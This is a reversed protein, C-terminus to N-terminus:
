GTLADMEPPAATERPRDIDKSVTELRDLVLFASSALLVIGLMPPLIIEWFDTWVSYWSYGLMMRAWSDGTWGWFGVGCGVAVTILVTFKGVFFSASLISPMMTRVPVTMRGTSRAVCRTRARVRRLIFVQAWALVIIPVTILELNGPSRLHGGFILCFLLVIIPVAMFARSVSTLLFDIFRAATDGTVLITKVAVAGILSSVAIALIANMLVISVDNRASNLWESFTTQLDLEQDRFPQYDTDTALLPSLLALLALAALVIAAALGIRSAVLGRLLGGILDKLSVDRHAAAPPASSIQTGSDRSVWDRLFEAVPRRRLIFTVASACSMLVLTLICTTYFVTMLLPLDSSWISEFAMWGLGGYDFTIDVLLVCAMTWAIHYRSYPSIISLYELMRRGSKWAGKRPNGWAADHAAEMRGARQILVIFGASALVGVLVPLVLHLLVERLVSISLEEGFPVSGHVPLDLNLEYRAKLALLFFAAIPVSLLLLATGHVVFAARRRKRSYVFREVMWGILLSILFIPVFLLITFTVPEWIHDNMDEFRYVTASAPLDFTFADLIHYYFQMYLPEDLHLDEVIRDVMEPSAAVPIMRQTPDGAQIYFISFVLSAIIFVTLAISIAKRLALWAIRAAGGEFGM